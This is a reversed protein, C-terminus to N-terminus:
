VLLADCSMEGSIVVVALTEVVVVDMVGANAATKRFLIKSRGDILSSTCLYRPSSTMVNNLQHQLVKAL